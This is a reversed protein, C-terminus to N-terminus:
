RAATAAVRPGEGTPVIANERLSNLAWQWHEKRISKKSEHWHDRCQSMIATDRPDSGPDDILLDNWAAYATALIECRKTTLPKLLKLLRDVEPKRDGFWAEAEAAVVDIQPGPTYSVRSGDGPDHTTFAERQHAFREAALLLAHDVPGLRDRVPRRGVAVGAHYQVFHAQKELKTRGYHRDGRSHKVLYATALGARHTREAEEDPQGFLGAAEGHRALKANPDHGVVKSPASSMTGASSTPADGKTMTAVLADLLDRATDRASALLSELKDVRAMLQDVRAVIRRQEPLPPLPFIVKALSRGTFHPIAAGTYYRQLIGEAEYIRLCFAFFHPDLKESPRVRHLAKQFMMGQIQGDWVATRAIGHGGECILVDGKELSFTPLESEELLMTKISDLEFRFWHVNTNRLYPHPDGSNKHKDIM